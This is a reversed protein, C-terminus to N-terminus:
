DELSGSSAKSLSPWLLGAKVGIGIGEHRVQDNTSQQNQQQVDAKHALGAILFAPDTAEDFTVNIALPRTSPETGEARAPTASVVIASAVLACTVSVFRLQRHM